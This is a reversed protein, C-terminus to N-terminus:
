TLTVKNTLGSYIYGALRLGTASVFAGFSVSVEASGDYQDDTLMANAASAIAANVATSPGPSAITTMYLLIEEVLANLVRSQFQVLIRM